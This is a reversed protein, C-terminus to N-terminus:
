SDRHSELFGRILSLKREITRATVGDRAAIEPVTHGELRLRAIRRLADDPLAAMLRDYQDAVLVAVAPDPELGAIEDVPVDAAAPTRRGDPTETGGRRAAWQRRREQHAKRAALLVLVQWLDTRDTLRPFRDAAVARCFSHFASVAVDEEDAAARTTGALQQRAVGLLRSIYREWIPQAAAADGARLLGLWTTVSGDDAMTGRVWRLTLWVRNTETDTVVGPAAPTPGSGM